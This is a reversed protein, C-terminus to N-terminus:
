NDGSHDPAVADVYCAGIVYERIHDPVGDREILDAIKVRVTGPHGREGAAVMAQRQRRELAEQAARFKDPQSMTM